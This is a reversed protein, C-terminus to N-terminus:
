HMQVTVSTLYTQSLTLWAAQINKMELNKLNLCKKEKMIEDLRKSAKNIKEMQGEITKKNPNRSEFAKVAKENDSKIKEMIEFEIDAQSKEYPPTKNATGVNVEGKAIMEDVEQGFSKKYPFQIIKNADKAKSGAEQRILIMELNNPERGQDKKFGRLLRDLFYEFTKVIPKVAM